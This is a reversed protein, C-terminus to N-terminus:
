PWQYWLQCCSVETCSAVCTQATRVGDGWGYGIDGVPRHLSVGTISRTEFYTSILTRIYRIYYMLSQYLYLYCSISFLIFNISLTVFVIADGGQSVWAFFKLPNSDREGGGFFFFMVEAFCKLEPWPWALNEIGKPVEIQYWRWGGQLQLVDSRPIDRKFDKPSETAKFAIM